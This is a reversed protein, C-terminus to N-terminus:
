EPPPIEVRYRDAPYLDRLGDPTTVVILPVGEPVEYDERETPSPNRASVSSGPEVVVPEPEVSERVVVGYGRVVAALGETRLQMLAARATKMAVGYTQSLALESPLRQGPAIDGAAIQARLIDAVQRYGTPGRGPHIM